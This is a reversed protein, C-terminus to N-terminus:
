SAEDEHVVAPSRGAVVSQDYGTMEEFAPNVYEIRWREDTLYIGYGAHEVAEQFRVVEQRAEVADIAYPITKSLDSLMRRDVDAFADAEDAYVKLVGYFTGEYILPVTASSRYGRELAADRWHDHEPATAVDQVVVLEGNRVARGTPGQGTDTEDTTITVASLYGDEAGAWAAPEVADTGEDVYGIWAFQLDANGVLLSVAADEIEARTSARAFAQNIERYTETVSQLESLHERSRALEISETRRRALARLRGELEVTRLPMRVTEDVVDWLDHDLDWVDSGLAAGQDETLLLLYPLYGMAAAKREALTAENHYYAPIDFVCVDITTEDATRPDADVLVYQHQSALWETLTARYEEDALLVCVRIPDDDLADSM